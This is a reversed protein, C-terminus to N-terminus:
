FDLVGRRKGVPSHMQVNGTMKERFFVDQFPYVEHGEIFDVREVPVQRIGSTPPDFDFFVGFQGTRSCPPSLYTPFFPPGSFIPLVQFFACGSRVPAVVRLFVDPFDHGVGHIPVHLDNGFNFHRAMRFFYEGDVRM